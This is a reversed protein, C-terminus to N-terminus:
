HPNLLKILSGETNNNNPYDNKFFFSYAFIITTLFFVISMSFLFINIQNFKTNENIITSTPLIPNLNQNVFKRLFLRLIDTKQNTTSIKVGEGITHANIIDTGFNIVNSDIYGRTQFKGAEIGAHFVVPQIEKGIIQYYSDRFTLYLTSNQSGIWPDSISHEIIKNLNFIRSFSEIKIRLYNLHGKLHTRPMIQFNILGNSSNFNIRAINQSTYIANDVFYIIGHFLNLITDILHISDNYNLCKYNNIIEQQQIKFTGQHLNLLQYELQLNIFTASIISETLNIQDKQVAISVEGNVPLVNYSDGTLFKGIRFNINNKILQYLIRSCWEQPTPRGNIMNMGSHGGIMNKISFIIEKFNENNIENIERIGELEFRISGASSVAMKDGDFFDINIMNKSKLGHTLNEPGPLFNMGVLGVEEDSTFLLEIPGHEFEDREEATLLQWAIGVGDDAGLLTENAIFWDNILNIKYPLKEATYHLVVDMHAQICISPTNEFGKTSPIKVLVNPGEDITILNEQIGM